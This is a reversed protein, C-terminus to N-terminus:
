NRGVHKKIKTFYNTLNRSTMMPVNFSNLSYKLPREGWPSLVWMPRHIRKLECEYKACGVCASNVLTSSAYHWEYNFIRTTDRTRM